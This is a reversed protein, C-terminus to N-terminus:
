WLGPQAAIDWTGEKPQEASTQDAWSETQGSGSNEWDAPTSATSGANCWADRSTTGVAQGNSFDEIHPATNETAHGRRPQRPAAVWEDVIAQIKLKAKEINDQTGKLEITAPDRAKPRSGDENKKPMDIKTNTAEQINRLVSGGQGIIKGCCGSYVEFTDDVEESAGTPIYGNLYQGSAGNSTDEEEEEDSAYDWDVEHFKMQGNKKYDFQVRDKLAIVVPSWRPVWQRGLYTRAKVGVVGPLVEKSITDEAVAGEPNKGTKTVEDKILVGGKTHKNKKGSSKVASGDTDAIEGGEADNHVVGNEEKGVIKVTAYARKKGLYVVCVQIHLGKFATAHLVETHEDGNADTPITRTMNQKLVRHVWDLVIVKNKEAETADEDAKFFVKGVNAAIQDFEWATEPNGDKGELVTYMNIRGM